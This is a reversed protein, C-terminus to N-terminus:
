PYVIIAFSLTDDSSGLRSEIRGWDQSKIQISVHRVPEGFRYYIRDSIKGMSAPAPDIRQIAGSEALKSALWFESRAERFQLTLSEAATRRAYRPFELRLGPADRHRVQRPGGGGFFGLLSIALLAAILWAFVREAAWMKAQFATDEDPWRM